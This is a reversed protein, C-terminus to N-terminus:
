QRKNNKERCYDLTFTNFHWAKLKKVAELLSWFNKSCTGVLKLGVYILKTKVFRPLRVSLIELM